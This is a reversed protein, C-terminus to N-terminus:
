GRRTKERGRGSKILQLAVDALIRRQARVPRPLDVWALVKAVEADAPRTFHRYIDMPEVRQPGPMDSLITSKGLAAWWDSSLQEDSISPRTSHVPDRSPLGQGAADLKDVNRQLIRKIDNPDFRVGPFPRDGCARARNSVRPSERRIAMTKPLGRRIGTSRAM